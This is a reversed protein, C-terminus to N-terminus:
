HITRAVRFGAERSRLWPPIGTVAACRLNAPPQAYSGGRVSILDADLLPRPGDRRRFTREVDSNLRLLTDATWESANGLMDFLGLDNPRLLGVPRDRDDSNGAHWAYSGLLGEAHGYPRSTWAGARCAHEWEAETPLRYGTRELYDAPLEMGVRIRNAPPYCMQDEPVGERESLWRCYRAAEYWTLWLVPRLPDPDRTLYSQEPPVAKGKLFELYQGNTVERTAVAYARAAPVPEIMEFVSHGQETGPSGMWVFGPKPVVALTHGHRNVYWRRGERPARSVLARDIAELDKGRGWRRLAWDAASHVGPDPNDRYAKLLRDELPARGAKPLQGAPLGGLFLILARRASADREGELRRVLVEVDTGPLQLKELLFARVRPDAGHRLLPWVREPRGLQLLMVAAQAQRRAQRDRDEESVTPPQWVSAAVLVKGDPSASVSLASPLFGRAALDRAQERHRAPEQGLLRLSPAGEDTHWVGAYRASVGTRRTASRALGGWPLGALGAGASAALWAAADAPGPPAAEGSRLGVDIDQQRLESHQWRYGQEDYSWVIRWATKGRRWVASYHHVPETPSPVGQLTLAYYGAKNLPNFTDRHRDQHVGLYVRHEPADKELVWLAAYRLEPRGGERYGAVDVPVFGEKRWRHDRDQFEPESLGTALRWPKGDRQWLLAARAAGGAAYPRLRVPRYGAPRLAEALDDVEALPLTQCLAFHETLLGHAADLRRAPDSGPPQWSPDPTGEGDTAPRDLERQLRAIVRVPDPGLRVRLRTFQQEDADLLLDTLTDPDDGAYDLLLDTVLDRDAPRSPSRFADALPPLLWRRAPRLLEAWRGQWLRNESLLIDITPGRVDRWRPSDPDLAALACAARIRRAPPERPNELRSWLAPVVAGAHPGLAKALVEVDPPALEAEVLREALFPSQGPDGPLLVLAAHLRARSQPPSEEFLRALLPDAHPRYPTLEGLIRPVDVTQASALSEVLAAARTEARAQRLRADYWLAGAILGALALLATGFLSAAAPRRRAWKVGRELLGTRRARVPRGTRWRQLDEALELASAYRKGPAKDLCKLCITELDRPCKPQLRRPPVADEALTRLITEVSTEAVFPPRGTLCEYLIAGLAYVDVAPSPQRTGGSAQEPAMYGPTGLIAGAATAPGEAAELRKALGFDAVKPTGDAALLVNAPKLDRHIVGRSHAAHLARALVEVLEAAAAAPLPRGGLRRALTGGEVYELAFFPVGDHEGVEYVQVINPHGLLAIAEAERQFRAREEKGAHAGALVVKLAVPRNLGLQRALYVVGMGGRGLESVVEYGGVDPLGTPPAAYHLPVPLPPGSWTRDDPAPLTPDTTSM